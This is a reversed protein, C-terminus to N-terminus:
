RFHRELSNLLSQRHLQNFLQQRKRWQDTTPEPVRRGMLRALKKAIVYIHNSNRMQMKDIRMVIINRCALEGEKRRDSSLRQDSSHFAQGDYELAVRFRSWYLDLVIHDRGFLAKERKGFCIRYNMQPKPFGYGGLKTPLSLLMALQTERPSASGEEIYGIARRASACGRRGKMAEAFSALKSCSTLPPRAPPAEGPYRGPYTGCLLYGFELLQIPSLLGAMEVFCLEPSSVYLDKGIRRFSGSPLPKSLQHCVIAKSPLRREEIGTYVHLPAPLSALVGSCFSGTDKEPLVPRSAEFALMKATPLVAPQVMMPFAALEAAKGVAGNAQCLRSRVSTEELPKDVRCWFEFATQKCLILRMTSGYWPFRVTRVM